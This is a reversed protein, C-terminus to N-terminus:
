ICLLFKHAADGTFGRSGDPWCGCVGAAPLTFAPRGRTAGLAIRVGVEGIRIKRAM